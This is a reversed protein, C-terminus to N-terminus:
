LQSLMRLTLDNPIWDNVGRVNSLKPDNCKLRSRVYVLHRLRHGLSTSGDAHGRPNIPLSRALRKTFLTSSLWSWGPGPVAARAKAAQYSRQWRRLRFFQPDTLTGEAPDNLFWDGVHGWVRPSSTWQEPLTQQRRQYHSAGRGCHKGLYQFWGVPGEIPRVHQGKVGTGLHKTIRVWDHLPKTPDITDAYWVAVHLHPTGRRQYEMVWHLRLMGARRQAQIWAHQAKVWDAKTAPCDRVTLTVAYGHGILKSTEVSMLFALNRRAAGPSWGTVNGRPGGRRKHTGSTGM